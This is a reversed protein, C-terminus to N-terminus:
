SLGGIAVASLMILMANWIGHTLIASYWGYRMGILTLIMGSVVFILFPGQVAWLWFDQPPNMNGLTDYGGSRFYHFIAFLINPLLVTVVLFYPAYSWKSFVMRGWTVSAHKGLYDKIQLIEENAKLVQKRLYAIKSSLKQRKEVSELLKAEKPFIKAVAIVNVLEENLKKKDSYILILTEARKIDLERERIKAGLQIDTDRQEVNRIRRYLYLLSLCPIVIQFLLSETIATFAFTDGVSLLTSGWLPVASMFSTVNLAFAGMDQASVSSLAQAALFLGAMGMLVGMANSSTTGEFVPLKGLLVPISAVLTIIMYLALWGPNGFGVADTSMLFRSFGWLVIVILVGFLGWHFTDLHVEWKASVREQRESMLVYIKDTHCLYAIAITILCLLPPLAAYIAKTMNHIFGNPGIMNLGTFSYIKGPFLVSFFALLVVALISKIILGPVAEPKFYIAAAILGVMVIPMVVLVINKGINVFSALNIAVDHLSGSNALNTGAGILDSIGPIVPISVSASTDFLPPVGSFKVMSLSSGFISPILLMILLGFLLINFNIVEGERTMVFSLAFLPIVYCVMNVWAPLVCWLVICVVSVIVLVISKNQWEKKEEHLETKSVEKRHEIEAAKKHSYHILLYAIIIGIGIAISWLFYDPFWGEIVFFAAFFVLILAYTSNQM